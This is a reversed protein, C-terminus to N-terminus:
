GDLLLESKLDSMVEMKLTCERFVAVEHQCAGKKKDTYWHTHTHRFILLLLYLARMAKSTTPAHLCKEHKSNTESTVVASRRPYIPLEPKVQNLNRNDASDDQFHSSQNILFVFFIRVRM